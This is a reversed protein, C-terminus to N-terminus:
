STGREARTFGTWTLFTQNVKVIVGEPTTSLYGCPAQEYLKEVDDDLLAAHFSERAAELNAM